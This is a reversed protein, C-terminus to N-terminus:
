PEVVIVGGHVNDKFQSWWNVSGQSIHCTSAQAKIDSASLVTGWVNVQTLAGVFAQDADFDGGVTDQDQGIVTTGGSTIHGGSHLGSGSGVSVGDKFFEYDGNASSWTFCIHHWDDDEIGIDANVISNEKLAYDTNTREDNPDCQLQADM